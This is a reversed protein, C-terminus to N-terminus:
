PEKVETSQQVEPAKAENTPQPKAPESSITIPEPVIMPKEVVIGNENRSQEETKLPVSEGTNIPAQVEVNNEKREIANTVAELQAKAKLLEKEPLLPNGNEDKGEIQKELTNKRSELQKDTPNELIIGNAYDAVMSRMEAKEAQQPPLTSAAKKGENKIVTNYLIEGQETVSLPKGKDNLQPLAKYAEASKEILGKRQDFDAQSLAGEKKMQEISALFGDPNKGFEILGSKQLNSPSKYGVHGLVGGLLSFNAINLLNRKFQEERDIETNYLQGKAEQAANMAVEFKAGSEAGKKIMEPTASIRDKLANLAKSKTGRELVKKIEADSMRSIIQGASTKLGAMSRVAEPTGAGAMAFSNIATIGMAEKYADSESKGELIANAYEDHFSTAAAATFTRLFKAAAGAGGIGGTATELAIFPLLTTGLDTVGYLISSPNVNFKGGQIPVRGFKDSNNKLLPYLKLEKQERSLTKDNKIADIQLQLEPKIVLSDTVLAKNADTKHYVKNEDLSQGMIYLERLRNSEDSMFPTSVAEWVGQATNKFAKGASGAAYSWWSLNQGLIEQIADDVKDNIRDPYKSDLETKKQNLESLKEELQNAKNIQEPTLGGTKEAITKLFNLEENVSNEILGIGTEELTQMLHNYGKQEEPKDKLSKADVFLRKYQEAKEPSLDKIYDYGLQAEPTTLYKSEPTEEKTKGFGFNYSNGYVKSVEIAYEKLLQEKNEGGFQKIANAVSNVNERQQKYDGVSSNELSSKISASINNYDDNNLRGSEVSKLLEENLGRKWKLRGLKRQYLQPNGKRDALLEEGHINIDEDTVGKFESSIQDPDIGIGDLYEKIKKSLNVADEDPIEISGTGMAFASGGGVQPITKKRGKLENYKRSLLIPNDPLLEGDGMDVVTPIKGTSPTESDLEPSSYTEGFSVTSVKKKPPPPLLEDETDTSINKKPPPPLLEEKGYM